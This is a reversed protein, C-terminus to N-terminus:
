DWRQSGAAGAARKTVRETREELTTTVDAYAEGPRALDAVLRSNGREIRGASALEEDDVAYLSEFGPPDGGTVEEVRSVRRGGAAAELTVVLDTAGFAGPAVGLDDVVREYVATAGDGHITGLVAESTAGVRMAEYLVSAEEGRVEGVVLAGDGLRLATRLAEPPPIEGGDAGTRLRQVDRGAAQLESVPLEPTDEITVTRVDAPLEWLLAGLTTTKGAGRAGALLVSRGREVCLSLLAAAEPTVTGNDVLDGLQWIDRDHARFAFALGDSAPPRIGAVRVQRGGVEVAADLTPAARSFARGSERRFRSALADVGAATLRLNTRMSRGDAVVRVPNATAPATVYVDSVAPDAFLDELLGYGRTHKELVGAVREVTEPPVGDAVAEVADRPTWGDAATAAVREAASGLIAAAEDGLQRDVPNLHYTWGEGSRYHRVTGGTSLESTGELAADPVSRDVRWRSVTLGEVPALVSETDGAAAALEALGTEAAVDATVDARGTAERAAGLPDRRARAALRADHTSVADVFRGAAVLVAMAEGTYAREVGAARTVVVEVDREALASVVTARCDAERELRGAGDCDTADTVLRDGEFRPQCGCGSEGGDSLLARLGM